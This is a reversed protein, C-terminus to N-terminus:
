AARHAMGLVSIACGLHGGRKIIQELAPILAEGGDLGFRKTGTYKLDIFKEFGEAEILKKLIARKGEPTFSIEKDPGEIREQIWSKEHPDSIHMFERRAYLLLYAAPDGADRQHDRVGVSCMTSSFGATTTPRRIGYSAPNLEEHRGEQCARAPRSQRPSAGAHPLRPDDYPRASLRPYGPVGGQRFDRRWPDSCGSEVKDGVQKEVSIWNADFASVMEGNAHVPWDSRQWKPGHAEVLVSDKPDKLTGFFDRWEADVSNPDDQFRAHLDELYSANGGYLFSSRQFAENAEQRAM